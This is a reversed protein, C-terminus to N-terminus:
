NVELTSSTMKEPQYREIAYNSNIQAVVTLLFQPPQNLAIYIYVYLPIKM